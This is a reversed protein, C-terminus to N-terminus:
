EREEQGFEIEIQLDNIKSVFEKLSIDDFSDNDIAICGALPCNKDFDRTKVFECFGKINPYLVFGVEERKLGLQASLLYCYANLYEIKEGFVHTEDLDDPIEDINEIYEIAESVSKVRYVSSLIKETDKIVDLAGVTVKEISVLKEEEIKALKNIAHWGSLLTKASLLTMRDWISGFANTMTRKYTKYEKNNRRRYDKMWHMIARHAFRQATFENMNSAYMLQAGFRQWRSCKGMAESNVFISEPMNEGRIALEQQFIHGYEHMLAYFFTNMYMDEIKDENIAITYVGDGKPRRLGMLTDEGLKAVQYTIREPEIKLKKALYSRACVLLRYKLGLNTYSKLSIEGILFKQIFRNAEEITLNAMKKGNVREKFEALFEGM